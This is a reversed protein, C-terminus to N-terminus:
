FDIAQFDFDRTLFQKMDYGRAELIKCAHLNDIYDDLGGGCYMPIHDLFDCWFFLESFLVSGFAMGSDVSIANYDYTFLNINEAVVCHFNNHKWVNCVIMTPYTSGLFYNYQGQKYLDNVKNLFKIYHDIRRDLFIQDKANTSPDSMITNFKEVTTKVTSQNILGCFPSGDKPFLGISNLQCDKFIKYIAGSHEWEVAFCKGLGNLFAIQSEKIM